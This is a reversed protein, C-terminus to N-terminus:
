FGELLGELVERTEGDEVVGAEAEGEALGGVLAARLIEGKRGGEAAEFLELFRWLELPDTPRVRLRGLYFVRGAERRRGM